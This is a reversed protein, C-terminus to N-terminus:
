AFIWALRLFYPSGTGGGMLSSITSIGAHAAQGPWSAM